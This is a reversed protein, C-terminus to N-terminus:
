TYREDPKEMIGSGMCPECVNDNTDAGYGNCSPCFVEGDGPVARSPDVLMDGPERNRLVDKHMKRFMRNGESTNQRFYIDALDEVANIMSFAQREPLTWKRVIGYGRQVPYGEPWNEKEPRGTVLLAAYTQECLTVQRLVQRLAKRRKPKGDM